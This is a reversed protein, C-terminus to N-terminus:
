GPLSAEFLDLIFGNESSIFFLSEDYNRLHNKIENQNPLSNNDPDLIYTRIKPNNNVIKTGELWTGDELTEIIYTELLVFDVDLFILGNESYVDKILCHSDENKKSLKIHSPIELSLFDAKNKKGHIFVTFDESWTEGYKACDMGIYDLGGNIQITDKKLYFEIFPWEPDGGYIAISDTKFIANGKESFICGWDDNEGWTINFDFSSDSINQVVLNQGYHNTYNGNKILSTKSESGKNESSNKCSVFFVLVTYLIFKKKMM